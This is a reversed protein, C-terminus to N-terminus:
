TGTNTLTVGGIIGYGEQTIAGTSHFTVVQAAPLSPFIKLVINRITEFNSANTTDILFKRTTPPSSNISILINNPYNQAPAISAISTLTYEVSIEPHRESM